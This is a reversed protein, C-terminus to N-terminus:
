VQLYRLYTHVVCILRGSFIALGADASSVHKHGTTTIQARHNNNANSGDKCLRCQSSDYLGIFSATRPNGASGTSARSASRLYLRLLYWM